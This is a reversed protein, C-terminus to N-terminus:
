CNRVRGIMAELRKQDEMTQLASVIVGPIPSDITLQGTSIIMETDPHQKLASEVDRSPLVATIALERFKKHVKVKLLESTGIGTTCVIMVKLLQPHEEIAQASYLTVFGIEDETLVPLDYVQCSERATEETAFFLDTYELKIQELRNYKVEIGHRM